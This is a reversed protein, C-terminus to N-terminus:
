VHSYKVCLPISRLLIRTLCRLFTLVHKFRQGTVTNLRANVEEEEDDKEEEEEEEEAAAAAAAAAAM